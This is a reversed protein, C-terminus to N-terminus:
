LMRACYTYITRTFLGLPPHALLARASPVHLHRMCISLMHLHILASTVPRVTHALTHGGLCILMLFFLIAFAPSGPMRSIAEPYVVFALGQGPYVLSTLFCVSCPLGPNFGLRRVSGDMDLCDVSM